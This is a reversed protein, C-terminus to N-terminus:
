TALNSVLKSKLINYIIDEKDKVLLKKPKNNPEAKNISELKIQKDLEVELKEYKFAEKHLTFLENRRERIDREECDKQISNLLITKENLRLKASDRRLLAEKLENQINNRYEILNDIFKSAADIEKNLQDLLTNTSNTDGEIGEIEIGLESLELKKSKLEIKTNEVEKIREKDKNFKEVYSNVINNNSPLVSESLKSVEKKTKQIISDLISM